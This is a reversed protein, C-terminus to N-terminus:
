FWTAERGELTCRLRVSGVGRLGAHGAALPVVELAEVPQVVFRRPGYADRTYDFVLTSRGGEAVLVLGIPTGEVSPTTQRLGYKGRGSRWVNFLRNRQNDAHAASLAEVAADHVLAPTRFARWYAGKLPGYLGVGLYAVALVGVVALLIQLSRLYLRRM